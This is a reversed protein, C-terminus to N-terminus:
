GNFSNKALYEKYFEPFGRTIGREIKEWYFKFLEDKINEKEEELVDKRIEKILIGIDKPSNELKGSERQHQVSKLWRNENRYKEILILEIDTKSPNSKRFESKNTEKFAESVLKGMMTKGDRTFRDFRKCVIGEVKSGGLISECELYQKLQDLNDIKGRYFLPVVELGIRNAEEALEEYSLYNQEGKDIAFLIFNNKPARDYKICNHYQSQFVEGCYIWGDHLDLKSVNTIFNSFLKQPADIIIQEGKSRAYFVGDKKCCSGFSGDVKESIETDSDFLELIDRHGINYVKSFSSIHM